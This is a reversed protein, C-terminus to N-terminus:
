RRPIRIAKRAAAAYPLGLQLALTGSKLADAISSLNRSAHAVIGQPCNQFMALLAVL